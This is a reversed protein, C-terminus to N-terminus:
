RQAIIKKLLYRLRATDAVPTSCTTSNCLFATPHDLTALDPSSGPAKQEIRKYYLPLSGATAFLAKTVANQEDGSVVIHIPATALERNALLLGGVIAHRQEAIAPTTLFHMAQEAIAHQTPQNTYQYLLNAFRAVEVNEDFQPLIQGKSSFGAGDSTAFISGITSAAESARTLWSPNGTAEYLSLFAQGMALTDGLYPGASDHEGHRFGGGPLSRNRIIWNAANKAENLYLKEGTAEYLTILSSIAWGNERAYIHHDIRPIGLQRRGANDLAFYDASHQGPIVDADQSTYFAGDPSMLFDHLYRHISLAADLWAKNKTGEQNELGSTFAYALAYIRINAAQMSMIKEFHPHTWDGDTSYQYVGGWVPDLLQLGANLTQEAMARAEEDGAVLCYEVNDSDLYKHVDGWGGLKHDYGNQLSAEMEQKLIQPLFTATTFTIPASKEISPGPSPDAIIAQLMAIMEEPPLYGQRKVIESGDAAFVVTAPWGYDEYRNSLDPRSDQDVRVAIFKEEILRIVEPNAYTQKDMVHCWHCWGAGLDLLVLRHEKKAEAFIKPDWDHWPIETAHAGVCSLFLALLVKM